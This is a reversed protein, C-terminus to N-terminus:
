CRGLSSGGQEGGAASMPIHFHVGPLFPFCSWSAPDDEAKDPFATMTCEVKGGVKEM